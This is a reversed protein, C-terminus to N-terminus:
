AAAADLGAAYWLAPYRRDVGGPDRGAPQAAAHGAALGVVAGSHGCEAPAADGGVLARRHDVALGYDALPRPDEHGAVAGPTAAVVGTTGILWGRYRQRVDRGADVVDGALGDGARRRRCHAAAAHRGAGACLPVAGDGASRVAGADC